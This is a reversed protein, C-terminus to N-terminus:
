PLFQAIIKKLQVQTFPKSLSVFNQNYRPDSFL